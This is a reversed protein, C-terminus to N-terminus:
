TQPAGMQSTAVRFKTKADRTFPYKCDNVDRLTITFYVSLLSPTLALAHQLRQSPNSGMQAQLAAAM